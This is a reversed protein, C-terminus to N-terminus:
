KTNAIIALIQGVDKQEELNLVMEVCREIQNQPLVRAACDRFKTVLEEHTMPNRPDGKAFAIEKTFERGDSLEVTVAQQVRLTQADEGKPHVYRVKRLLTQVDERNVREDDFQPLKVEGDIIAVAMCYEISFKGELGTVPEHYYLQIPFAPSTFCRVEVVENAKIGQEHVISLIADVSQHMIRCCPYPKVSLSPSVIDYPSGLSQYLRELNYDQSYMQCYGQPVEFISNEATYGKSALSAAIIGNQAATGAHFSKTMTGFNRKLGGALSAAIGLAIRLQEVNLGMLKSSAVTTGMTGATITSHWGAQYYGIGLALNVRSGIEFGLIYAELLAQGSLKEREALALVTPMLVVSPHGWWSVAVDDYDLVHSMTGNILAALPAAAKFGRTFVSAEPKSGIEQVYRSVIEAAPENAGALACGISDLIAYKAISIAEVPIQSYGTNIVFDAVYETVGTELRTDVAADKSDSNM